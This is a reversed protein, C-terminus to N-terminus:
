SFVSLTKRREVLRFQRRTTAFGVAFIMVGIQAIQTDRLSFFAKLQPHESWYQKSLAEIDKKDRLAILAEVGM